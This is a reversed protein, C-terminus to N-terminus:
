LESQDSRPKTAPSGPPAVRQPGSLTVEIAGLRQLPALFHVYGTGQRTGGGSMQSHSFMDPSVIAGTAANFYRLRCLDPHFGRVWYAITLEQEADTGFPRGPRMLKTRQENSNTGSFEAGRYTALKMELPGFASVDSQIEQGDVAVTVKPPSAFLQTSVKPLKVAEFFFRHRGGFQRIEFHDLEELSMDFYMPHINIQPGPQVFHPMDTHATEGTRSVAAIQYRTYSDKGQSSLVISISGDADEAPKVFGTGGRYSWRGGRIDQITFTEGGLM